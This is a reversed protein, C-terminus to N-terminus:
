PQASAARKVADCAAHNARDFVKRSEALAASLATWSENGTQKLKQLQAEAASADAKMKKVAADIDARKGAALKLATERISDAAERWAVMQATALKGFIVQQEPIQKAVTDIYTQLRSEFSNWQAELQPKASQWAAEGAEAQKKVAAQFEGCQKKLDLMLQDVDRKSDDTMQGATAELSALAADMEGIREKAWNLYGHMSSQDSM